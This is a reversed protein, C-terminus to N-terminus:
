FSFSHTCIHSFWGSKEFVASCFVGARSWLVSNRIVTIEMERERFILAPFLSCAAHVATNGEALRCESARKMVKHRLPVIFDIGPVPAMCQGSQCFRVRERFKGSPNARCEAFMGADAPHIVRGCSHRDPFIFKSNGVIGPCM